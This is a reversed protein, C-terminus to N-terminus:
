SGGGSGGGFNFFNIDDPHPIYKGTVLVLTFLNDATEVRTSSFPATPFAYAECVILDKNSNELNSYFMTM